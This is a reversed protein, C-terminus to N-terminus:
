YSCNHCLASAFCIVISTINDSDVNLYQTKPTTLM